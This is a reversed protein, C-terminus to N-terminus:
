RHSVHLKPRRPVAAAAAQDAYRNALDIHIKAIEPDFAKHAMDREARERSQYYEATNAETEM